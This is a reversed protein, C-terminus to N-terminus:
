DNPVLDFRRLVVELAEKDGLVWGCTTESRFIMAGGRVRKPKLTFRTADILGLIEEDVFHPYSRDVVLGAHHGLASAAETVAQLVKLTIQDRGGVALCTGFGGGQAHWDIVDQPVTEGKLLPKVFLEHTLHSGAHHAHAQGKGVGLSPMDTRMLVYCCLNAPEKPADTGTDTANESM